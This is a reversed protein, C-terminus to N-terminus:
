KVKVNTKNLPPMQKNVVINSHIQWKYENKEVKVMIQLKM